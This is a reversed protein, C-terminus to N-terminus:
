QQGLEVLYSLPLVQPSPLYSDFWWWWWYHRGSEVFEGGKKKLFFWGREDKM